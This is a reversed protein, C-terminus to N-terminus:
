LASQRLVPGTAAASPEAQSGHGFTEPQTHVLNLALVASALVLSDLCLARFGSGQYYDVRLQKPLRRAVKVQAPHGVKRTWFVLWVLFRTLTIPSPQRDLLGFM